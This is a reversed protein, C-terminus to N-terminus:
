RRRLRQSQRHYASMLPTASVGHALVSLAITALVAAAVPQSWRAPLGQEFAFALYYLSGIGRIGFWAVLRRQSATLGARRPGALRLALWVALPRVLVVLLLALAWDLWGPAVSHLALGVALVTAAEVLREIRAGFALLRQPLPQQPLPARAGVDGAPVVSAMAGTMASTMVSTMVSTAAPEAAAAAEVGGAPRSRWDGLLTAGCAFVAMFTSTASARAVGFALLVAGAYLLEDRLVPDGRSGRAHLLRGLGHGLLLGLAAGGFVPWVIAQLWWQLSHWAASASGAAIPDRAGADPWGLGLAALGLMVAPLATGDNLGGEATLSLRVADRDADSRIQVESALVPDTPALIAALLLAVPWPLGLLAMAAVLALAVTLVMAPGALWGAGHWNRWGRRDTPLGLRLGVAFLSVLVALETGVVLAGAHGTFTALSPAGLVAGVLWGVVLYVVAPSLPLRRVLPEALALALLLLGLLLLWFTLLAPAHM